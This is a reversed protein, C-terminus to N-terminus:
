MQFDLEDSGCVAMTMLNVMRRRGASATGGKNDTFTAFETCSICCNREMFRTYVPNRVLTVSRFGAEDLLGVANARCDCVIIRCCM